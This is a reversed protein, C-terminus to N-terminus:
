PKPSEMIAPELKPALTHIVAFAVLYALGAIIFLINYNNDTWYLLYGTFSSFLSAGIYGCTGGLGAVSGVARRPFMDSVLTYQNSSFGQHAATALGLLAVVSWLNKVNGAFM